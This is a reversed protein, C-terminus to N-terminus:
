QYQKYHRRMSSPANKHKRFIYETYNTPHIISVVERYKPSKEHINEPIKMM